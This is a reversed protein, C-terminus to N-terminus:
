RFGLTLAYQKGQKPEFYVEMPLREKYSNLVAATDDSSNKDVAVIKWEEKPLTLPALKETLRPRGGRLRRYWEFM